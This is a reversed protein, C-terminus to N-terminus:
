LFIELCYYYLNDMIGDFSVGAELVPGHGLLRVKLSTQLGLIRAGFKARLCLLTCRYRSWSIFFRKRKLMTLYYLGFFIEPTNSSLYM